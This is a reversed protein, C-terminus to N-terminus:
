ALEAAVEVSCTSTAHLGLLVRLASKAHIATVTEIVTDTAFADTLSLIEITGLDVDFFRARWHLESEQKLGVIQGALATGVFVVDGNVRVNGPRNM